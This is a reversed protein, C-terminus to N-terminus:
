EAVAQLRLALVIVSTFWVACLVRQLLGVWTHLPAGDDIAFFGVAVFLLLVAIGTLMTCTALDRWRPDAIMRRSFVIFGLGTAAFTM